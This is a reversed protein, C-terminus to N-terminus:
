FYLSQNSILNYALNLQNQSDSIDSAIEIANIAGRIFTWLQAYNSFYNTDQIISPNAAITQTLYYLFQKTYISFCFTQTLSYLPVNGSDVWIVTITLAMDRSLINLNITSSSLPFLIYATTAGSPVVPSGSFDTIYILRNAISADNGTSTDSIIVTSPAVPSQAASFNQAFAM